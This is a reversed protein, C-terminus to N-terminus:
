RCAIQSDELFEYYLRWVEEETRGADVMRNRSYDMHGDATYGELDVAEAFFSLSASRTNSRNEEEPSSDSEGYGSSILNEVDFEFENHGDVEGVENGDKPVLALDEEEMGKSCHEERCVDSDEGHHNGRESGEDAVDSSADPQSDMDERMERGDGYAGGEFTGGVASSSRHEGREQNSDNESQIRRRFLEDATGKGRQASLRQLYETHAAIAQELKSTLAPMVRGIQGGGTTAEYEHLYNWVQMLDLRLGYRRNCAIVACLV